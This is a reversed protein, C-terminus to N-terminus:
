PRRCALEGTTRRGYMRRGYHSGDNPRNEDAAFSDGLADLRRDQWGCVVGAGSLEGGVVGLDARNGCGVTAGALLGVSLLGLLTRRSIRKMM